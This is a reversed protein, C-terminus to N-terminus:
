SFKNTMKQASLSHLLLQSHCALDSTTLQVSHLLVSGSPYLASVLLLKNLYVYSECLMRM